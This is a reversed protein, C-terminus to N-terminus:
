CRCSRSFSVLWRVEIAAKVKKQRGEVFSEVASLGVNERQQGPRSRTGGFTPGVRSFEALEDEDQLEFLRHSVAELDSRLYIVACVSQTLCISPRGRKRLSQGKGEWDVQRLPALRDEEEVYLTAATDPLCLSALLFSALLERIAYRVCKTTDPHLHRLGAVPRGSFVCDQKECKDCLRIMLM